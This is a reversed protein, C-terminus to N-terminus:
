LSQSSADEIIRENFHVELLNFNWDGSQHDFLDNVRDIGDCPESIIFRGIEHVVWPTDWVRVDESTGTRWICGEKM